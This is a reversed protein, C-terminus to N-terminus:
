AAQGAAERERIAEAEREIEVVYRSDMARIIAIEERRLLNGTIQLWALLETHSVPAAGSFGPAQASRLEWFWDWLSLCFEPVDPDPSDIEFADNRERRTEGNKDKM